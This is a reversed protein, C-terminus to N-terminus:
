PKVAWGEAPDVWIAYQAVRPKGDVTLLTMFGDDKVSYATCGEMGKVTELMDGVGKRVRDVLAADAPRDDQLVELTAADPMPECVSGDRVVVPNTYRVTVWPKNSVRMVSTNAIKGDADFAFRMVATCSRGEKKPTQCLVKGARAPALPDGVKLMPPAEAAPAAATSLVAALTLMLM